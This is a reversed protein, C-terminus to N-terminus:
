NLSMEIEMLRNELKDLRNLLMRGYEDEDGRDQINKEEM